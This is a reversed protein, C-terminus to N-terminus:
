GLRQRVNGILSAAIRGDTKLDAVLDALPLVGGLSAVAEDEGVYAMVWAAFERADVPASMVVTMDSHRPDNRIAELILDVSDPPGELVQVFSGRGYLLAGTLDLEANRRRATSLISGIDDADIGSDPVSVYIARRLAESAM